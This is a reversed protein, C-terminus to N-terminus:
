WFRSNFCKEYENGKDLKYCWWPVMGVFGSYRHEADLNVGFLLRAVIPDWVPGHMFCRSLQRAGISSPNLNGMNWLLDSGALPARRKLKAILQIQPGRPNLATMGDTSGHRGHMM